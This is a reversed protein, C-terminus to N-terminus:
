NGKRDRIPILRLVEITRRGSPTVVELVVTPANGRQWAEYETRPITFQQTSEASRGAPLTLACARVQDRTSHSFDRLAIRQISLGGSGQNTLHVRLRVTTKNGTDAKALVQYSGSLRTVDSARTLQPGIAVLVALAFCTRCSSFFRSNMATSGKRKRHDIAIQKGDAFSAQLENERFKAPESKSSRFNDNQAANTGTRLVKRGRVRDNCCSPCSAGCM